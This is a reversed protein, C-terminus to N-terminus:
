PPDLRIICNRDDYIIRKGQPPTPLRPLLRWQGIWKQVLEELTEPSRREQIRVRLLEQNYARLVEPTAAEGGRLRIAPPPPPPAGRRMAMIAALRAQEQAKASDDPDVPKLNSSSRGSEALNGSAAEPQASPPGKAEKSCGYVGVMFGLMVACGCRALISTHCSRGESLNTAAQVRSACREVEGPSPRDFTM